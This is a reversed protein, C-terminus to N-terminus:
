YTNWFSSPPGSVAGAAKANTGAFSSSDGRRGDKHYGHLLENRILWESEMIWRHCSDGHAADAEDLQYLIETKV